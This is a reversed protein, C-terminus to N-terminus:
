FVYWFVIPLLYGKRCVGGLDFVDYGLVCLVGVSGEAWCCHMGGEDVESGEEGDGEEEEEVGGRGGCIGGANVGAGVGVGVGVVCVGDEGVGEGFVVRWGAGAGVGEGAVGGDGKGVFEVEGECGTDGACGRAPHDSGSAM